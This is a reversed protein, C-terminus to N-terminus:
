KKRIVIEGMRTELQIKHLGSGIKVEVNEGKKRVVPFDSRVGGEEDSGPLGPTRAEITANANSPISFVINGAGTMISSSEGVSPDLVVDIDGASSRARVSGQVSHLNVTGGATAVSLTGKGSRLDIDGGASQLSTRGSCSGVIISGGATAVECDSGVSELRVDGGATSARLTKGIAGIIMDGGATRIDAEGTVGRVSVGGGATILRIDGTVEESAIDGGSTQLDVTGTTKGVSVDGGGTAAHIEGVLTGKVGIDGAGTRLNLSFTVPVRAVVSLDGSGNDEVLVKGGGQVASVENVQDTDTSHIRLSVEDKDWTQVSVSGQMIRVDLIDGKKVKFTFQKEGADGQSAWAIALLAMVAYSRLPNM